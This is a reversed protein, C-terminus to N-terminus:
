LNKQRNLKFRKLLDNSHYVTDYLMKKSVTTTLGNMIRELQEDTLSGEISEVEFEPLEDPYNATYQVKLALVGLIIFHHTCSFRM